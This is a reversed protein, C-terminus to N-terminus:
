RDWVPEYIPYDSKKLILNNILQDVTQSQLLVTKQPPLKIIQNRSASQKSVTAKM